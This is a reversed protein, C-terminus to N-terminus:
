KHWNWPHHHMWSSRRDGRSPWATIGDLFLLGVLLVGGVAAFFVLLAIGAAPPEIIGSTSPATPQPGPAEPSPSKSYRVGKVEGAPPPEGGMIPGLTSTLVPESASAAVAACTHTRASGVLRRLGLREMRHVRRLTVHLQKAVAGATLMPRAHLGARLELVQRVDAPLYVLCGELRRVTAMLAADLVRSQEGQSLRSVTRSTAEELAALGPTYGSGSPLSANM